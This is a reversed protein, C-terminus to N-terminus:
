ICYETVNPPTEYGMDYATVLADHDFDFWGGPLADQPSYVYMPFRYKAHSCDTYLEHNLLADVGIDYDRIFVGLLHYSSIEETTVHEIPQDCSIAYIKIDTKNQQFCYQIGPAILENSFLGGDVYYQEKYLHPPFLLPAASSGIVIHTIDDINQMDPTHFLTLKGTNFCVAGIVLERLVKEGTQAVFNYVTEYLPENNYISQDWLPDINYKYVDERTLNHWIQKLMDVAAGQEKPSFLALGISNLSGVSVGTIIDWSIGKDHMQNIVGAQFSGHAGGGSLVLISCPAAYM